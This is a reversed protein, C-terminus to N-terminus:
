ITLLSKVSLEIQERKAGKDDLAVAVVKAPLSGDGKAWKLLDGWDKGLIYQKAKELSSPSEAARIARLCSIMTAVSWVSLGFLVVLVFRSGWLTVIGWAFM